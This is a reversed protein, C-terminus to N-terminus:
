DNGKSERPVTAEVQPSPYRMLSATGHRPTRTAACHLLPPTATDRGRQRSLLRTPKWQIQRAIPQAQRALRKRGQLEAGSRRPCRRARPHPSQSGPSSRPDATHVERLRGHQRDRRRRRHLDSSRPSRRRRGAFAVLPGCGPCVSGIPDHTSEM